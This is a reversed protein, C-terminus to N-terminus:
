DCGIIDVGRTGALVTLRVGSRDLALAEGAVHEMDAEIRIVDGDRRTVAEGVWIAPDATEMVAVETRGLPPMAVEAMVRLGAATPTIRCTVRRVGAAAATQPLSDLAAVLHPDAGQQPGRQPPLDVTVHVHVPVCITECVGMAIQADLRVPAAADQPAVHLPLIVDREYGVSTMGNIDFTSPVPWRIAAHALNVSGSWDIQPPIGADGPSRWYTKWGPALRIALGAVHAGEATQWGPLLSVTVVDATQASLPTAAVTASLLVGALRAARLHPYTIM